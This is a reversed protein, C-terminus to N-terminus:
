SGEEEEDDESCMRPLFDNVHEHLEKLEPKAGEPLSAHGAACTDQLFHVVLNEPASSAYRLRYLTKRTEYQSVAAAGYIWNQTGGHHARLETSSSAEAIISAALLDAPTM